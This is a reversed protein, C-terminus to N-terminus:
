VNDKTVKGFGTHTNPTKSMPPASTIANNARDQGIKSLKNQTRVIDAYSAGIQKREKSNEKNENEKREMRPSVNLLSRLEVKKGDRDSDSSQLNKFRHSIDEMLNAYLKNYMRTEIDVLTAETQLSKAAIHRAQDDM